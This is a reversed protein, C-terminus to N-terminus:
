GYSYFTAESSRLNWVEVTSLRMRTLVQRPPLSPFSRPCASRLVVVVPSESSTIVMLSKWIRCAAEKM